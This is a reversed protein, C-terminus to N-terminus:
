DNSEIADGTTANFMMVRSTSGSTISITYTGNRLDLDRQEPSASASDGLILANNMTLLRGPSIIDSPIIPAAPLAGSYPIDTWGSADFVQLQHVGGKNIGFAWQRANGADDLGGGRIFFIGTATGNKDASFSEREGLQSVAEDFRVVASRPSISVPVLGVDKVPSLNQQVTQNVGQPSTCASCLALGALLIAILVLPLSNRMNM